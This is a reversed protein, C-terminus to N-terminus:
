NSYSDYTHLHQHEQTDGFLAKRASTTDRRKKADMAGATPSSMSVAHQPSDIRARLPRLESAEPTSRQQVRSTEVSTHM